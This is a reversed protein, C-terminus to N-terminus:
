FIKFYQLVNFVINYNAAIQRVIGFMIGISNNYYELMILRSVDMDKLLTPGFLEYKICTNQFVNIVLLFFFFTNERREQAGIVRGQCKSAM